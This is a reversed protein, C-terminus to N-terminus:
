RGRLNAPVRPARELNKEVLTCSRPARLYEEPDEAEAYNDRLWRGKMEFLVIGDAGTLCADAIEVQGGARARGVVNLELRDVLPAAPAPYMRRLITQAYSEFAQGFDAFWQHIRNRDCCNQVIAFLPGVAAQEAFYVPDM